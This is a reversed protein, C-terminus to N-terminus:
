QGQVTKLGERFFGQAVLNLTTRASGCVAGSIIGQHQIGAVKYQGNYVPQVSSQIDVVQNINIGAELLTTISLFAEDRRPTELLGSADTLSVIDGDLVEHPKLVYVKGNDIYVNQNSHQKLWEYVNGNIVWPRPRTEPFDGIAGLKLNPFEGILAQFVQGLTQTGAISQFTQTTTTDFTGSLGSIRTVINTGERASSAQYITGDYIQYLTNYGIEVKINRGVFGKPANPPPRGMDFRDQFIRSRNEESLNYIDLTLNNQDSYTNRQVWFQITFPMTVIILDGGDNPDITIRFSRGFKATM